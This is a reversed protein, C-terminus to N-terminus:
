MLIILNDIIRSENDDLLDLGNGMVYELLRDYIQHAYELKEDLYIEPESFYYDDSCDFSDTEWSM